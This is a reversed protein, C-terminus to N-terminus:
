SGKTRPDRATVAHQLRRLPLLCAEFPSLLKVHRMSSHHNNCPGSVIALGAVRLKSTLTDRQMQAERGRMGARQHQNASARVLSEPRCGCIWLECAIHYANSWQLPLGVGRSAKPCNVTM